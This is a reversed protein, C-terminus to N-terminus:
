KQHSITEETLTHSSNPFTSDIKSYECDDIVAVEQMTDSCMDIGSDALSLADPDSTPSIEESQDNCVETDSLNDASGTLSETDLSEYSNEFQDTEDLPSEPVHLDDNGHILEKCNRRCSDRKGEFSEDLSEREQVKEYSEIRSCNVERDLYHPTLGNRQVGMEVKCEHKASQLKPWGDSHRLQLWQRVSRQIVTAAKKLKLFRRRERFRKFAAQIVRVANDLVAEQFKEILKNCASYDESKLM